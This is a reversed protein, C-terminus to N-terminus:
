YGDQNEMHSVRDSALQAFFGVADPAYELDLGILQLQIL